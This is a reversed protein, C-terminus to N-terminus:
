MQCAHHTVVIFNKLLLLTRRYSLRTSSRGKRQNHIMSTTRRNMSLNNVEDRLKIV